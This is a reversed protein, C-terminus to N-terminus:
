FLKLQKFKSEKLKNIEQNAKTIYYKINIDYEEFKKNEFKVFVTQLWPGSEVQIERADTYNFKIIKCGKNSVYYRITNQIKEKSM